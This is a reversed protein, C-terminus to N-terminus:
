TVEMEVVPYNFGASDSWWLYRVETRSETAIQNTYLSQGALYKRGTVTYNLTEVVKQRLVAMTDFPTIMTGYDDFVVDVQLNGDIFISDFNKANLDEAALSESFNAIDVYATQYVANFPIYTLEPVARVALLTGNGIFDLASGVLALGSVTKNFYTYGDKNAVCKNATPFKSLYPTLSPNLFSLTDLNENIMSSFDWTGPSTVEPGISADPYIQIGRYVTTDIPIVENATITIQAYSTYSLFTLLVCLFPLRGKGLDFFNSLRM